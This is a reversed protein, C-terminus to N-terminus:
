CNILYQPRHKAFVAKAKVIDEIPLENRSLFIFNFQPFLPVLEQLEKGTQGDSGSVLIKIAHDM